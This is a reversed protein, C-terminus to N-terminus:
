KTILYYHDINNRVMKPNPLKSNQNSPLNLSHIDNGSFVHTHKIMKPKAVNHAHNTYQSGREFPSMSRIRAQLQDLPM